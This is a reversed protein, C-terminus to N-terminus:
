WSFGTARLTSIIILIIHSGLPPWFVFYKMFGVEVVAQGRIRYESLKEPFIMCQSQSFLDLQFLYSIVFEWRVSKLYLASSRGFLCHLLQPHPLKNSKANWFASVYQVMHARATSSYASPFYHSTVSAHLVPLLFAAM